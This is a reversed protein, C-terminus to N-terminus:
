ITLRPGVRTLRVCRLCVCVVKHRLQGSLAWDGLVGKLAFHLCPRLKGFDELCWTRPFVDRQIQKHANNSELFPFFFYLSQYRSWFLHYCYVYSFTHTLNCNLNNLRLELCIFFSIVAMNLLRSDSLLFLVAPHATPPFYEAKSQDCSSQKM